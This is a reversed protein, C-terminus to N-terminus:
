VHRRLQDSALVVVADVDVSEANEEPVDTGSRDSQRGVEFDAGVFVHEKDEHSFTRSWKKGWM